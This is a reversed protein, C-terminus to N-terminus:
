TKTVREATDKPKEEVGEAWAFFTFFSFAISTVLFGAFVFGFFIQEGETTSRMLFYAAITLAYLSFLIWLLVRIPSVTSEKPKPRSFITPRSFLVSALIMFFSFFTIFLGASGTKLSGSLVETRIDISGEAKIGAQIMWVGVAFFVVGSLLLLLRMVQDFTLKM